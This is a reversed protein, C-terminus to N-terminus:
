IKLANRNPDLNSFYIYIHTHGDARRISLSQNQILENASKDSRLLHWKFFIHLFPFAFFMVTVSASSRRSTFNKNRIFNEEAWNLPDFM